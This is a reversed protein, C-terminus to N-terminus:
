RSCRMLSETVPTHSSERTHIIVGTITDGSFILAHVSEIVFAGINRAVRVRDDTSQSDVVIMGINKYSQDNVARMCANVIPQSNHTPIIVSVLPQMMDAYPRCWM